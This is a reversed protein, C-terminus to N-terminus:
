YYWNRHVVVAPSGGAGLIGRVEQQRNEDIVGIETVLGWPFRQHVLFEAQRRRARDPDQQTDNWYILQMVAWDLDALRALDTFFDSLSVVAHGNTFVVPLDAAAVVEASSVLHLVAGQGGGYGVVSDTHIAYLMPSRPAFYFPVYDSLFGGPGVPVPTQARREKLHSHAIGQVTLNRRASDGDCVLAGEALIPRLNSVHTIHYIPTM